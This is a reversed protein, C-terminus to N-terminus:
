AVSREIEARAPDFATLDTDTRGDSVLDALVRGVSPVLQFGHGSFGFAHFLGEAHRSAGIVPLFDATTAEMGAWARVMRLRATWPFLRTASAVADSLAMMDVQAAERDPNLRGQTGGGILVTGVETQKFSLKRGLSSIVPGVRKPARETVVMMSNKIRHTMPDGAMTAVRDSWAGAANVVQPAEVPGLGTEVHWVGRQRRMATVPCLELVTVGAAEAAARFARLTRHPDAAGDGEVWAAGLCTSALDPVLAGLENAGLLREHHLGRAELGRVRDTIRKLAAEDEAVQLQGCALFGCDDGVLNAIGHWSAAAELSLPLEAPDRGLTRVGAATAGSAHRGIFHREVLLVRAGRRASQLAASLGHLGGGIVLLDTTRTM